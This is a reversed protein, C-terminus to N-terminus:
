RGRHRAVLRGAVVPIPMEPLISRTRGASAAQMAVELGDEAAAAAGGGPDGGRDGDPHHWGAVGHSILTYRLQHIILRRYAHGAITARGGTLPTGGVAVAAIADLEMDTRRGPLSRRLSNIAM